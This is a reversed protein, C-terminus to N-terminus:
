KLKQRAARCGGPVRYSELLNWAKALHVCGCTTPAARVKQDLRVPCGAISTSAPDIRQRHEECGPPVGTAERGKKHGCRCVGCGDDAGIAEDDAVTGRRQEGARGDRQVFALVDTEDSAVAASFAGQKFDDRTIQFRILAFDRAAASDHGAKQRLREVEVHVRRDFGVHETARLVDEVDDGFVLVRGAIRMAARIQEILDLPVVAPVEVRAQLAQQLIEM